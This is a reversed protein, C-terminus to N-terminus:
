TVHKWIHGGRIMYITSESVNYKAAVIRAPGTAKRIARVERETLKAMSHSEGPHGTNRAERGKALMDTTNDQATGLFLHDPRVCARNDCRHCVFLGDPIPGNHLEYSFRNARGQQNPGITLIGYGESRHGGWEWCEPGKIAHFWFREEPTMKTLHIGAEANPDGYRRNIGYHRSCLNKAWVVKDCGSVSCKKQSNPM